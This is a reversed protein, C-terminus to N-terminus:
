VSWGDISNRYVDVITQLLSIDDKEQIEEYKTKSNLIKNLKNFTKDSIRVYLPYKRGPIAHNISFDTEADQINEVLDDVCFLEYMYCRKYNEFDPHDTSIEVLSNGWIDSDLMLYTLKIRKM